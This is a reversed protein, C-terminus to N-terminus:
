PTPIFVSIPEGGAFIFDTEDINGDTLLTWYGNVLNSLEEIILLTANIDQIEVEQLQKVASILQKIVQYLAPNKSQIGSTNLTSLLRNLDPQNAM